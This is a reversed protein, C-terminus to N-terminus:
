LRDLMCSFMAEYSAEILGDPHTNCIERVKIYSEPANRDWKMVYNATGKSGTLEYEDNAGVTIGERSDGGGSEIDFKWLAGPIPAMEAVGDLTCKIKLLFLPM